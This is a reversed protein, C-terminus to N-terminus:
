KRLRAYKARSEDGNQTAVKSPAASHGDTRQYQIALSMERPRCQNFVIISDTHCYQMSM